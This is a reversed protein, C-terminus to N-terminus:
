YIDSNSTAPIALESWSDTSRNWWECAGIMKGNHQGGLLLIGGSFPVCKAHLREIKPCSMDAIHGFDNNDEDMQFYKSSTTSLIYFRKEKVCEYTTPFSPCNAVLLNKDLQECLIHIDIGNQPYGESSQHCSCSKGRWKIDDTSLLKSAYQWKLDGLLNWSYYCPGGCGGAVRYLTDDVIIPLYIGACSPVDMWRKENVLYLLPAPNKVSIEFEAILIITQGRCTLCHLGDVCIARPLQITELVQESLVDYIKLETTPTQYDKASVLRTGILSCYDNIIQILASPIYISLFRTRATVNKDESKM